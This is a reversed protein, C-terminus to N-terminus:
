RPNQPILHPGSGGRGSLQRRAARAKATLVANPACLACPTFGLSRAQRLTVPVTSRAGLWSCNDLHYRPREDVVLVRVDLEDGQLLVAADTGEDGPEEDRDPRAIAGLPATRAQPPEPRRDAPGHEATSERVEPAGGEGAPEAASTGRTPSSADRRSRSQQLTLLVACVACLLVSMWAWQPQDAAVAGALVGGAALVLLLVSVLM